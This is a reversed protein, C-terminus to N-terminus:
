ARIQPHVSARACARDPSGTAIVDYRPFESANSRASTAKEAAYASWFSASWAEIAVAILSPLSGPPQLMVWVHRASVLVGLAAAIAILAAYVRAGTRAPDHLTAILFVLGLAIVAGRQLLCLNCPTFHLGYQVYLAFAMMLACAAAAVANAQRRSPRTASM